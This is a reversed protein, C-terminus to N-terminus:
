IYLEISIVKSLVFACAPKVVYCPDTVIQRSLASTAANLSYAQLPRLLRTPKPTAKSLSIIVLHDLTRGGPVAGKRGNKMM